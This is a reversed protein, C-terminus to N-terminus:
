QPKKKRGNLIFLGGSVLTLAAGLSTPDLEPATAHGGGGGGGHGGHGENEHGGHGENEHDHGGGNGHGNNERPRVREQALALGPVLMVGFVVGLLVKRVQM